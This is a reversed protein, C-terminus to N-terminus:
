KVLFIFCFMIDLCVYCFFCDFKSLLSLLIARLVDLEHEGYFWNLVFIPLMICEDENALLIPM